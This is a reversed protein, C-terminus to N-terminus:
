SKSSKSPKSWKGKDPQKNKFYGSFSEGTDKFTFKGHYYENNKFEGVFKDGNPRVYVTQGHFNGWNFDGKYVSGAYEGSIIKAHGKGHPILYDSNVLSDPQVEGSYIAKGLPSDWEMDKVTSPISEKIQEVYEETKVNNKDRRLEYWISFTIAAVIVIIQVWRWFPSETTLWEWRSKEKKKRMSDTKGKSQTNRKAKPRPQPKKINRPQSSPNSTHNQFSEDVITFEKDNHCGLTYLFDGVTQLRQRKIPYMGKMIANSTNESVGKKRLSDIPFGENLIVTAEPPREGTLMKFLTAALAYVDLTTPFTGDRKYESQELPSYGPTGLGISTSSEPEGNETFQKSLGFDILYFKGDDRRMINKPKIDLHLIRMSHMYQLAQGIEKIVAIADQENLNGKQKIFDDLNLGDLFEMAYYSTNNEDFVESVNVINPHSLKALNEAEKRFRNRYNLFVSGESGEISNGDEKRFNVESMFFEKIAVKGEVMMMGLEEQVPFKATALYTIGFSGKGLVKEIRYKGGHLMAGPKLGQQTNDM